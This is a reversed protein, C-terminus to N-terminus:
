SRHFDARFPHHCTSKARRAYRHVQVYSPTGTGWMFHAIDCYCRDRRPSGSLSGSSSEATIGQRRRNEVRKLWRAAADEVESEHRYNLSPRGYLHALRWNIRTM